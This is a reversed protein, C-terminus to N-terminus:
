SIKISTSIITVLTNTRKVYVTAEDVNKKTWCARVAVVVLLGSACSRDSCFRPEELPVRAEGPELVPHQVGAATVAALGDDADVFVLHDALEGLLAGFVRRVAELHDLELEEFLVEGELLAAVVLEGAVEPDVAVPALLPLPHPTLSL